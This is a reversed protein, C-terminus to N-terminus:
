GAAEEYAKRGAATLVFSGGQHAPVNANVQGLVWHPEPNYARRLWGRQVLAKIAVERGREPGAYPLKEKEAAEQVIQRQIPTLAKFANTNM